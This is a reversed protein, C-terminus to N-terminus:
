KAGGARHKAEWERHLVTLRAQDRVWEQAEDIRHTAFRSVGALAFRTAQQQRWVSATQADPVVWAVIQLIPAQSRANFLAELGAGTIALATRSYDLCVALSDRMSLGLRACVMKEVDVTVLGRVQAYLVRNRTELTLSAVGAVNQTRPAPTPTTTPNGARHGTLIPTAM